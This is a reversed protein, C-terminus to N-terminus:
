RGANRILRTLCGSVSRALEGLVGAHEAPIAGNSQVYLMCTLTGDVDVPLIAIERPPPGLYHWLRQDISAPAEPFGFFSDNSRCPTQLMSPTNLPIALADIAKDPANRVFGKWGILVDERVVLLMAASFVTDFGHELQYSVLDAMASRSNAQRVARMITDPDNLDIPVDVEGSLPVAIRKVAIRALASTDSIEETESLTHVYGRRESGSEEEIFEGDETKVRHDIRKYRNVREIGYVQELWYMLRMEPAIAQVIEADFIERLEVLVDPIFPDSTAIAVHSGNPGTRGLPIAHWTAALEPSLQSALVRDLQDYHAELAPPIQHQRGLGHALQEMSLCDLEILNSGLRGGHIIQRSLAKQVQEPTVDGTGVLLEGLRMWSFM